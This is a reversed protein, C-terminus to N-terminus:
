APLRISPSYSGGREGEFDFEYLQVKGLAGRHQGLFFALANPAAIFLHTTGGNKPRNARIVEALNDALAIAHDAGEVARQGIGSAPRADVVTGISAVASTYAKVDVVADRSVSVVVAVDEGGDSAPAVTTTWTSNATSTTTGPKWVQKRVGKQVPFAQSGSKRDLEYGALFAVSCHCELLLHSESARLEPSKDKLFSAVSPLVASQWFESARIHRGEFNEAVCVFSACEDEMREAFRMFSRVGVVTPGSSPSAVLLDERECFKRFTTPDFSNTGNVIIQQTLSDYVNQTKDVPIERLGVNILRENLLERLAPRSLYDVRFRLRRAFNEFADDTLELHERWAKRIKGLESRPGESFFRDPLAGEESQRLLPGLKDSTSWQWNSVLNLRHGGDADGLRTRANHFRQLLSRTAGIFAPDCFSSAAYESSRDVHYKVQFYDAACARGGANVGPATYHVAVDDVGDARDHEISVRAVRSSPRLLMAAHLWFVMGQFVDGEVRAAVQKLAM